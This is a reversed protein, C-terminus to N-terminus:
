TVVSPTLAPQISGLHAPRALAREIRDQQGGLWDLAAYIEREEIDGLGLVQGLSSSATAPSLGRLTDGIEPAM